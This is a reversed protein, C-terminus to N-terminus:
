KVYIEYGSLMADEDIPGEDGCVRLEVYDNTINDYDRHFWPQGPATCCPTEDSRCNQGDWLADNIYASSAFFSSSTAVAPNGSECYYNNGIFTPVSGGTFCPCSSPNTARSSFEVYGVILSWVHERNFGRTISIGDLYNTNLLSHTGRDRVADPARYQYATVKGCIQSYSIGNNDLIISHCGIGPRRCLRYDGEEYQTLSSPCSHIPLTMDLYGIRMWGGNDNCLTDMNCYITIGNIYYFGTTSNPLVAKINSCSVPKFISSANQLELLKQVTETIDDAMGATSTITDKLDPLTNIIDTLKDATGVNAAQLLKYSSDNMYMMQINSDSQLLDLKADTNRTLNYISSSINAQSRLPQLLQNSLTDQLMQLIDTINNLQETQNASQQQSTSAGTISRKSNCQCVQNTQTREAAKLSLLIVLILVVVVQLAVLLYLSCSGGAPVTEHKHVGAIPKPSLNRESSYEQTEEFSNYNAM